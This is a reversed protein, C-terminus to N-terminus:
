IAHRTIGQVDVSGVARRMQAVDSPNYGAMTQALVDTDQSAKFKDLNPSSHIARRGSIGTGEMIQRGIRKKNVWAGEGELCKQQLLYLM